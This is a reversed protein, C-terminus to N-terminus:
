SQSGARPPLFLVEWDSLDALFQRDHTAVVIAASTARIARTLEDVLTASLHNTPEDLILLNPQGTLCLALHLRRQQGQSMRGVPTRMAESDLLGSAAEITAGSANGSGRSSRSATHEEYIEYGMKSEPWEPHEQGLYAIRAGPHRSVKGHTAILEGALASLLTSKGVGNEGTVVIKNGGTVTLSVPGDLRNTLSASECRVLPVGARTLLDPFRLEMPPRPVTIRHRDLLEQQRRLSQVVAPAHSQRQHKSTGKEPRWGTSLRSQAGSAAQALRAHEDQEAQHDQAWRTRERRRGEEWVDYGGSFLRALGDHTPDLDLFERAVDRLLARDHTVLALGGAHQRVSETLFAVGSADLHNTPEDLLLLDYAGGLVCALRVRYRQGVSLTSLVRARDTCAGLSDLAVDVRREAGWADLRTAADLAVEYLDSAGAVDGELGAAAVDLAHLALRSGSTADAVLSGVTEGNRTALSQEAMGISGTRVVQGSDPKLAGSLVQLLTTKGRGNEGVIALRTRRSVTVSVDNLIQRAGRSISVHEARLQASAGLPLAESGALQSQLDHLSTTTPRTPEPREDTM